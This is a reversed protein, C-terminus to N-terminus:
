ANATEEEVEFEEESEKVLTMASDQSVDHAPLIPYRQLEWILNALWIGGIGLVALTAFGATAYWPVTGEFAPLVTQFRYVAHVILLLGGIWALARPSRKVDRMLLLAFPVALHLAILVLSVIGWGGHLRPLFWAAESKLNAIWALMYQFYVMYAFVIVFTLMLNGFDNVADPSTFQRLASRNVRVAFVIVAVSFATLLHGSGLLPGIITSHFGPQLAMLWDISAFNITIGYLVLGIASLTGLRTGLEPDGNDDQRRSWINLFFALGAWVIFYVAARGEFFALNMYASQHRLLESTSGIEPQAWPFLYRVGLGIPIFLLALLLITRSGAELIRRLLFGWAGGTLHYVMVLVLCGLGIGLFLHYAALYPPFFAVPYLWASFGCGLLCVIGTILATRILSGLQRPM